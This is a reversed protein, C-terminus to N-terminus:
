WLVLFGRSLAHGENLVRAVAEIEESGLISGRVPEKVEIVSM